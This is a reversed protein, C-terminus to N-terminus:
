TLVRWVEATFVSPVAQTSKWGAWGSSNVGNIYRIYVSWVFQAWPICRTVKSLQTHLMSHVLFHQMVWGERRGPPSFSGRSCCLAQWQCKGTFIPGKNKNKATNIEDKQQKSFKRKPILPKSHGPCPRSKLLLKGKSKKLKEKFSSLRETDLLWSLVM